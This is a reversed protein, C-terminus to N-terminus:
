IYDFSESSRLLANETSIAASSVLRSLPSHILGKLRETILILNIEVHNILLSYIFLRFFLSLNILHISYLYKYKWFLSLTSSNIIIYSIKSVHMDSSKIFCLIVKPFFLLYIFINEHWENKRHDRLSIDSFFEHMLMPSTFQRLLRFFIHINLHPFYKQIFKFTADWM